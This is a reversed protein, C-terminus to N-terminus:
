GSAHFFAQGHHIDPSFPFSINPDLDGHTVSKIQTIHPNHIASNLPFSLPPGPDHPLDLRARETATVCASQAENLCQGASPCQGPAELYWLPLHISRVPAWLIGDHAAPPSYQTGRPITNNVILILYVLVPAPAPARRISLTPELGAVGSHTGWADAGVDMGRKALHLIRAM